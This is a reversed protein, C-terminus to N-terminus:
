TGSLSSKRVIIFHRSFGLSRWVGNPETIFPIRFSPRFLLEISWVIDNIFHFCITNPENLELSSFAGTAYPISITASDIRSLQADLLHICLSEEFPSDNTMFLIYKDNWKVAAELWAGLIRKGTSAGRLHIESIPSEEDNEEHKGTTMWKHLEEVYVYEKGDNHVRKTTLEEAIRM